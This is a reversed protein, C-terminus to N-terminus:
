YNGAATQVFDTGNKNVTAVFQDYTSKGQFVAIM